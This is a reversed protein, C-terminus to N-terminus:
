KGTKIYKYVSTAAISGEAAATVIQKFKNSGTTVDGAAFIGEVNTSMNENVIIHNSSDLEVKLHRLLSVMPVAGIEIFLGNLSLSNEGEFVNDLIIKKITTDGQIETINTELIIKINKKEAVQEIWVPEARLKAGRYILYVKDAIDALHLAATVASDSGGVVGVTKHRFFFGDCTACYSVGKGLFDEEGAINLKRKETGLALIITKAEYNENNDLLVNFYGERKSVIKVAKNIVEVGLKEVQTKCNQMYESGSISEIGLYNEVKHATAAMGGEQVGLILVKMKYRAAYLAAGYGAPGTGIVILDYM